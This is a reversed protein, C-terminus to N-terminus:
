LGQVCLIGVAEENRRGRGLKIGTGGGQPRESGVVAELGRNVTAPSEGLAPEFASENQHRAAIQGEAAPRQGVAPHGELIVVVDVGVASGVAFQGVGVREGSQVGERFRDGGLNLLH